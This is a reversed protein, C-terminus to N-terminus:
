PYRRGVPICADGDNQLLNDLDNVKVKVNGYRGWYPGWSNHLLVYDAQGQSNVEIAYVLIAHGGVTDGGCDLWYDDSPSYMNEHWDIGIVVPGTYSLALLVDNTNFAWRYELFFGRSQMVKAGALVSTGEYVPEEGAWEDIKQAAHYVSLGHANDLNPVIVPQAMGEHTWSFGVCASTNGQDLVQPVHWYRTRPTRVDAEALVPAINYKRSREDFQKLRGLRSDEVSTGDRM